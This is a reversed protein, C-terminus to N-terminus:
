LQGPNVYGKGRAIAQQQAEIVKAQNMNPTSGTGAVATFYDDNIPMFITGKYVHTYDNFIPMTSDWWSKSDFDIQNEKSRGKNLIQLTGNITNQDSTETLYKGFEAGDQFASDLATGNIIGFKIYNTLVDGNANYMVPLSHSRYVANIQAPDKINKNKIEEQAQKYRALLAIDPRKQGTQQYYALDLPLYAAYLATGDVAINQMGSQLIQQDGMFANSFDLFGSFDSSAVEDLSTMGIGHGNKTIPMQVTPVQIGNSGGEATQITINNKQGYGELLLSVPDSAIAGIDSSKGDKSTGQKTNELKLDFSQETSTKSNVLSGVLELAEKDTGTNTRLKLLSRMNEPLSKYIYVLAQQAQQAQDKTMLKGNYLDQVTADFSNSQQAAEQFDKLGKLLKGSQVSAYSNSENSNSGLNSICSQIFTTIEKMSTSGNVAGLIENNFAMSKNSARLYLIDQNTIPKYNKEKQIQEPRLLKFDSKDHINVCYVYGNSTIAAENLSDKSKAIDLAEDYQEKNFSLNSLMNLATLYKTAMSQSSSADWESLPGQFLPTIWKMALEQDSPLGKLMEQIMKMADKVTLEGTVSSSSDKIAQETLTPTRKDSVIVPTYSLFPPIIGGTQYKFIM